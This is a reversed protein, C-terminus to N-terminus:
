AQWGSTEWRELSPYIQTIICAFALGTTFGGIHAGFAIGQGEQALGFLDFGVGMVAFLGLQSPPIPRALPWVDPWDLRWRLAMGLYVGEYGSVAGSAGICPIESGRNLVIHLVSGGIGCLFFAALAWWKGLYQSVLSGFMWLFVMNMLLHMPGGHLFLGTITTLLTGLTASSLDRQLLSDWAQAVRLPVIGYEVHGPLMGASDLVFVVSVVVIIAFITPHEQFPHKVGSGKLSPRHHPAEM